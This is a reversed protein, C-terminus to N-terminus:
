KSSTTAITTIMTSKNLSQRVTTQNRSIQLFIHASVRRGFTLMRCASALGVVFIALIAALEALLARIQGLDSALTSMRGAGIRNIRTTLFKACM